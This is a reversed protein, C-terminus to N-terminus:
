GPGPFLTQDLQALLRNEDEIEIGIRLFRLELPKISELAHDPLNMWDKETTFLVKADAELAHHRM